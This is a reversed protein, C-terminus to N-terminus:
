TVKKFFIRGKTGAAPLTTGYCDSPLVKLYDKLMSANKYLLVGKSTDPSTYKFVMQSTDTLAVNSAEMDALLNIQASIATTAGTGGKSIPLTGSLDTMTHTHSKAAAGLSTLTHTHDKAAAGLATLSHTHDKAAAGIATPSHTHDKAAAGFDDASLVTGSRTKLAGSCYKVDNCSEQICDGPNMYTGDYSFGSFNSIGEFSVILMGDADYGHVYNEGKVAHDVTFSEDYFTLTAM